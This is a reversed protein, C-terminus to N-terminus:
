MQKNETLRTFGVFQAIIGVWKQTWGSFLGNINRLTELKSKVIIIDIMNLTRYIMVQYDSATLKNGLISIGCPSIAPDGRWLISVLRLPQFLKEKLIEWKKGLVKNCIFQCECTCVCQCVYLCLVCALACTNFCVCAWMTKVPELSSARM